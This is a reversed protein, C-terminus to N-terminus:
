KVPMAAVCEIEVKAAASVLAAVVVTSRAPPSDPFFARYATNMGGFDKVDVLFVTCKAAHAMNTGAAEFVAKINELSQTTQGGITTDPSERKLGLQGSSYVVDGVRIGPTLTASASMGKPVIPERKSGQAMVPTAVLTLLVLMLPRSM